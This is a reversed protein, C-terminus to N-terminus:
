AIRRNLYFEMLAGILVGDVAIAYVVRDGNAPKQPSKTAVHVLSKSFGRAMILSSTEVALTCRYSM